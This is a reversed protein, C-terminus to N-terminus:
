VDFIEGVFHDGELKVSFPLDSGTFNRDDHVMSVGKVADYVSSLFEEDTGYSQSMTNNTFANMNSSFWDLNIWGQKAGWMGAMIKRTHHIHDRMIHVKKDSLLFEDVAAKERLNLRSDADRIIFVDVDPEFAINFRWFAGTRGQSHGSHILKAGEDALRILISAPVDDATYFVVEWGPYIQKALKVNEIAGLCYKNDSGFLSFSIVKRM